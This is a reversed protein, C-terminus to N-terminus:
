LRHKPEEAPDEDPLLYGRIIDAISHDTCVLKYYAVADEERHPRYLDDAIEKSRNVFETEDLKDLFYPVRSLIYNYDKWNYLSNDKLLDARSLDRMEEQLFESFMIAMTNAYVGYADQLIPPIGDRGSIHKRPSELIDNDIQAESIVTAIHHFIGQISLM